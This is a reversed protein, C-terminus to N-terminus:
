EKLGIKNFDSTLAIISLPGLWISIEKNDRWLPLNELTTKVQYTYFENWGEAPDTIDRIEKAVLLRSPALGLAKSTGPESPDYTDSAYVKPDPIIRKIWPIFEAKSLVGMMAHVELFCKSIINSELNLGFQQKCSPATAYLSKIKDIAWYTDRLGSTQMSWSLSNWLIWAWNNLTASSNPSPTLSIMKKLNTHAISALNHLKKQVLESQATKIFSVEIDLRLIWSLALPSLKASSGDIQKRLLELSHINLLYFLKQHSMEVLPSPSKINISVRYYRALSSLAALTSEAGECRNLLSDDTTFSTTASNIPADLCNFSPAVFDDLPWSNQASANASLLVDTLLIVFCFFRKMGNKTALTFRSTLLPYVKYFM